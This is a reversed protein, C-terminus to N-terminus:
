PVARKLGPSVTGPVMQIPPQVPRLLEDPLQFIIYFIYLVTM